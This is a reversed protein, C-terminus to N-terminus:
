MSRSPIDNAHDHYDHVVVHRKFNKATYTCPKKANDTDAECTPINNDHSTRLAPGEILESYNIMDLCLDDWAHELAAKPTTEQHSHISCPKRSFRTGCM